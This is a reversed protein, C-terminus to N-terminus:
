GLPSREALYAGIELACTAAPSPANCVHLAGPRELLLFDDVLAGDPRVAQARVGSPAPELDESRVEPILRRLSRVFLAKFLSRLSEEAGTRFFRAALRWFGPYGAIELCDSLDFDRKRYGERKFALVANPGCHAGGDLTRTFHVGLFPLAPDPVPYILTKVLHSREPKLHYYEGRFPLIRAPPETGALRAIRDSFLGACNILSRAEFTEQETRLRKLSGRAEVKVVRRGLFLDRQGEARYLEALKRSVARYDVIGTSAVRLAALCSLHPEIALAEPSSLRRVALGNELGRQYLAELRPLEEERTAVILKGCVEYALGQQQCFDVLSSSGQRSFRAKFSGPRYYIGSHIVGSNRGTQHCALELEKELLVLRARPHRMSLARATALGVIGGGIVACDYIM